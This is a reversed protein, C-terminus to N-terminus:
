KTAVIVISEFTKLDYTQTGSIRDYIKIVEAKLEEDITGDEKTLRKKAKQECYQEGSLPSFNMM